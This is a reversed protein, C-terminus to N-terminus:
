TILHLVSLMRSYNIIAANKGVVSSLDRATNDIELDVETQTFDRRLIEFGLLPIFVFCPSFSPDEKHPVIFHVLNKINFTNMYIFAIHVICKLIMPVYHVILV